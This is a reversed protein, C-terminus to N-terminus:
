ILVCIIHILHATHKCLRSFVRLTRHSKLAYELRIHAEVLLKNVKYEVQSPSQSPLNQELTDPVILLTVHIM